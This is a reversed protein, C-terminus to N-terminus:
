KWLLMLTWSIIIAPAFFSGFPVARSTGLREEKSTQSRILTAVLAASSALLLTMPLPELGIWSGAAAALKIDGLGLGVVGRIRFFVWRLAYLAGAAASAAIIHNALIGPWSDSLSAMAAVLGIPVLPISLVDPILMRRSDTLTIVLMSFVLVGSFTAAVADTGFGMGVSAGVALLACIAVDRAVLGYRELSERWNM